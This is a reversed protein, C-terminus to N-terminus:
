PYRKASYPYSDSVPIVTLVLAEVLAPLEVASVCVRTGLVRRDGFTSRGGLYMYVCTGLDTNEGQM